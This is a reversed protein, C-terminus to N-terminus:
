GYPHLYSGPTIVCGTLLPFTRASGSLFVIGTAYLTHLAPHCVSLWSIFCLAAKRHDPGETWPVTVLSSQLSLIRVPLVSSLISWCTSLALQPFITVIAYSLLISVLSQCIGPIMLSVLATFPCVLLGVWAGPSTLTWLAQCPAPWLCVRPVSLRCGNIGPTPLRIFLWSGECSASWSWLSLSIYVMFNCPSIRTIPTVVFKSSNM